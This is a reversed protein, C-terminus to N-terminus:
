READREADGIEYFLEPHFLGKLDDFGVPTHKGEVNYDVPLVIGVLIENQFEM